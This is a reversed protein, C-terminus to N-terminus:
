PTQKKNQADILKKLDNGFNNLNQTTEAPKVMVDSSIDRVGITFQDPKFNSANKPMVGSITEGQDFFALARYANLRKQNKTKGFLKIPEWDGTETIHRAIRTADFDKFRAKILAAVGTVVATAQSTGTMYGYAGGPLTSYVNKGPAAVDVSKIGYNSSSLVNRERDFATVSIINDLGYDAPYYKKVDSNSQENGAAAVFLIGANRALVIAEREQSSPELGGGSYNIINAGVAVCYRIARVTNVLNNNTVSKPDYYKAIILSVKPSMGTIGIGNGGEAGIIGAIHTGHGQNDTLDCNNEVFNYGHVDDVFGDHDDDIGNTEKNNGYEDKGTEGLNVWLNNKLDPHNVDVGTDIVCVKVDRSGIARHKTWAESAQTSTLDWKQAMAPDNILIDYDKQKIKTKVAQGLETNRVATSKSLSSLEAQSLDLLAGTSSESDKTMRALEITGDDNSVEIQSIRYLNFQIAAIFAVIGLGILIANKKEQKM